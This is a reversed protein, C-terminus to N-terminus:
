SQILIRLINVKYSVPPSSRASSLCQGDETTHQTRYSGSVIFIDFGCETRINIMNRSQVEVKTPESVMNEYKTLINGSELGDYIALMM